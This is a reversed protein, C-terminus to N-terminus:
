FLKTQNDPPLPASKHKRNKEQGEPTLANVQRTAENAWTKKQHGYPGPNIRGLLYRLKSMTIGPDESRIRDIEKRILPAYFNRWTQQKM